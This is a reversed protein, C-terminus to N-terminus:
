ERSLGASVAAPNSSSVADMVRRVNRIRLRTAAKAPSPAASAIGASDSPGAGPRVSNSVAQFAPLRTTPISPRGTLM